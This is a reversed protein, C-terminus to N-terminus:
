KALLEGVTAEVQPFNFPKFIVQDFGARLMDAPQFNYAYATLAVIPTDVFRPDARLETVAEVGTKRPMQIDMVVLDPSHQRAVEM